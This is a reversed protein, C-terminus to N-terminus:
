FPIDDVEESKETLDLAGQTVLEKEPKSAALGKAEKWEKSEEILKKVWPYIAPPIESDKNIDALSFLITPNEPKLVKTGKPLAMIAGLNSYVKGTASTGHVIQLQAGHGLVSKLDFGKLEEATFKKGRWSELDKRLTAKKHLSMTYKKSFVRPKPEREGDKELILREEPLEWGILVRHQEKEWMEDYITGLDVIMYCVVQYLGEPIIELPKEDEEKVIIGAM